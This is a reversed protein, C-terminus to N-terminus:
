PLRIQLKRGREIGQRSGHVQARSYDPRPPHPSLILMVSLLPPLTLEQTSKISKVGPWPYFPIEKQGWPSSLYWPRLHWTLGGYPRRHILIEAM